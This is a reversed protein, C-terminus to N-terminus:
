AGAQQKNVGSFGGPSAMASTILLWLHSGQLGCSATLIVGDQYQCLCSTLGSRRERPSIIEPIAAWVTIVCSFLCRMCM